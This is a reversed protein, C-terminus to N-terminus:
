TIGKSIGTMLQSLKHLINRKMKVGYSYSIGKQETYSKLTKEQFFVHFILDREDPSLQKLANKLCSCEYEWCLIDLTEPADSIYTDATYNDLALSSAGCTRSDRVGKRIIDNISNKIGNTAYAVFRHSETNYM